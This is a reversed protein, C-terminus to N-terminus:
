GSLRNIFIKMREIATNITATPVTYSLRLFGEGIPGFATGPITCVKERELLDLAFKDSSEGIGRIDIFIYFAGSSKVVPLFDLKDLIFERRSRYEEIFVSTCVADNELAAVAGAQSISSPCAYVNEQLKIMQSIIEAPGSSYGIRWGTMAYAKSFSNVTITRESMGPFSAISLVKGEWVFKEYVEDSIVLLNYKEALMAISQLIEVPYITGTPNNPSNILIVKTRNTIKSEIAKITPIFQNKPECPIPIAIGGSLRIQSEYNTWWPTPLLVEDDQNIITRMTLYLGGMGGCTIIVEKDPDAELNNHIKLKESVARRLISTGANATYHTQGDRMAKIAAEVIIPHTDFDPEGIGLNIVGKMTSALNFMKRIPSHHLAHVSASIKKKM